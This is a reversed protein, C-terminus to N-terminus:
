QHTSHDNSNSTTTSSSSRQQIFYLAAIGLVAKWGALVGILALLLLYVLRVPNSLGPLTVTRGSIGLTREITDFFGRGGGRGRSTSSADDNRRQFGQSTSGGGSGWTGGQNSSSINNNVGRLTSIRSRPQNSSSSSKTTPRKVINGKSDIYM